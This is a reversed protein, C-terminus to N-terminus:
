EIGNGAVGAVPHDNKDVFLIQRHREVAGEGELDFLLLPHRAMRQRWDLEATRDPEPIREVAQPERRTLAGAGRVFGSVAYKADLGLRTGLRRPQQDDVAFIQETNGRRRCCAFSRQSFSLNLTAEVAM